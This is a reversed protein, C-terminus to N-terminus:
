VRVAFLRRIHPTKPQWVKAAVAELPLWGFYRSDTSAGSNDGRVFVKSADIQTIRKIKELGAHRVIVIDGVKLRRSRVALVIRGPKLSPLM